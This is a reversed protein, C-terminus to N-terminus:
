KLRQYGSIARDMAAISGATSSRRARAQLIETESAGRERMAIEEVAADHASMRGRRDVQPEPPRGGHAASGPDANETLDEDIGEREGAEESDPDPEVGRRAHEDAEADARMLRLTRSDRNWSAIGDRGLKKMRDRVVRGLEEDSYDDLTKKM